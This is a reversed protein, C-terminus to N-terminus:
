GRKPRVLGYRRRREWLAKRSIGLRKAIETESLQGQHKLVFHRFYEVLSGQEGGGSPMQLDSTEVTVQLGLHEPQIEADECLIVAREIANQLERVNGPWRHHLMASMAKDSFEIDIRGVKAAAKNLLYEALEALDDGRERLPPLCIDVVRLRYYLDERFTGEAIMAPLDRHTAALVRVDVRKTKSSGVQRVEQEQLVRLLRAQAPAPLEGVEDLFLTGLDASEVLGTHRSVAGTFAGKEHGFLESEILSDPIAACNVAVFPREARPSRDHIARAVLEKGTGSEGMILVTADTSAVREIRRMVAQMPECSGVMGEIDEPSATAEKSPALKTHKSLISDVTLLLEQPDFPKSIYDAAGDKMAEVASKITGFSTMIVVPTRHSKQLLETGVGGPLRVDSIILDFADLHQEMAEPLSGAETVDHGARHLLRRVESRIVVEDEVVLIQSM